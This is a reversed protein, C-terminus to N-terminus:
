SPALHGYHKEVMRTDVHGLAKAVVFLEAGNMIALSAYTHRLQHFGVAPQIKARKCAAKMPDSQNAKKWERGLLFDTGNRGATLQKFFAVGEPTLFVHRDRNTKSKRIHLTDAATFDAVRLRALEEYRAGTLLAAHVLTRFEGECANLLRDCEAPTLYRVRAIDVGHFPQVRSWEDNAAVKKERWALNLAAKLYVLCRNASTQRRRVDEPDNFDTGRYAQEHGSRTRKRAPTQAIERHWKRIEAADLQEVAKDGFAPVAFANLRLKADYGSPRDGLHELYAAIAQRVTYPGRM